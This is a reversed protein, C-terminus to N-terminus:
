DQNDRGNNVARGEVAAASAAAAPAPAARSGECTCHFAPSRPAPTRQINESHSPLPPIRILHPKCKSLGTCATDLARLHGFSHHEPRCRCISRCSPMRLKQRPLREENALTAGEIAAVLHTCKRKPLKDENALTAGEIAAVLDTSATHGPAHAPKTM